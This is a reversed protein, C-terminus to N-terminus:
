LEPNKSRQKNLSTEFLTFFHLCKLSILSLNIIILLICFVASAFRSWTFLQILLELWRLKLPFTMIAMATLLNEIINLAFLIFPAALWLKLKRYSPKLQMGSWVLFVAIFVAFIFHFVIDLSSLIILFLMRGKEGFTTLVSFDCPNIGFLYKEVELAGNSKLHIDAVAEPIVFLTMLALLLALFIVNQLSAVRLIFILKKREM